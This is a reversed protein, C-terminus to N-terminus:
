MQISLNPNWAVKNVAAVKKTMSVIQSGSDLLVEEKSVGNVIALVVRLHAIDLASKEVKEKEEIAFM